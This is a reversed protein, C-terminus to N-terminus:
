NEAPRRASDIVLVDVGEKAMRLNLGLQEPIAALISADGTGAAQPTSGDVQPIESLPHTSEPAFRLRFSYRGSLGTKDTVPLDMIKNLYTVLQDMTVASAVIVGPGAAMSGPRPQPGAPLGGPAPSQPSNPQEPASQSAPDSEILKSGSSGISLVYVKLERTERHQKLAFRDELLAGLRVAIAEPLYPPSWAPIQTVEEAKAEISWRDTKMWGKAGSIQHAAVHHCIAILSELTFDNLSLRGGPQITLQQRSGPLSAKVSAVDFVPKGDAARQSCLPITLIAV